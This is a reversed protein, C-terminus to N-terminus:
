AARTGLPTSATLESRALLQRPFRDTNELWTFAYKKEKLWRTVEEEARKHHVECILVPRFAAFIREAGRLVEGEAGEVDVKILTPPRSIEAYDDLAIAEVEVTSGTSPNSGTSVAGQNRSSQGSAREFRLRGASSWVANPILQIQNFGNRLIHEEIRRANEPDAEFAFVAGEAGVLQAAFMSVIGIHAGVDYFVSGPRLNSLLERQVPAEYQGSAYEMEFRPDLYAWVSSGSGASVHLWLRTDVPLAIRVLKKLFTGLVPIRSVFAHARRLRSSASLKQIGVKWNMLTGTLDYSIQFGKVLFLQLLRDWITSLM